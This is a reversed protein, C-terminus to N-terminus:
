FPLVETGVLPRVVLTQMKVLDLHNTRVNLNSFCWASHCPPNLVGLPAPAHVFTLEGRKGERLRRGCERQSVKQEPSLSQTLNAPARMRIANGTNQKRIVMVHFLGCLNKDQNVSPLIHGSPTWCNTRLDSHAWLSVPCM